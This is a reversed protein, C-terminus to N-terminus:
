LLFPHNYDVGGNTLSIFFTTDSHFLFLRDIEFDAFIYLLDPFISAQRLFAKRLQNAETYLMKRGNLAASNTHRQSRQFLETNQQGHRSICNQKTNLATITLRLPAGGELKKRIAEGM